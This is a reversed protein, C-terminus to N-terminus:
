CDPNIVKLDFNLWSSFNWYKLLNNISKRAELLIDRLDDSKDENIQNTIIKFVKKFFLKKEDYKNKNSLEGLTCILFIRKLSVVFFKRNSMPKLDSM